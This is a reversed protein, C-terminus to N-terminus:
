IPRGPTKATAATHADSTETEPRCPCAAEFLAFAGEGFFTSCPFYKTEIRAQPSQWVGLFIPGFPGSSSGARSRIPCGSPALIWGSGFSAFVGQIAAVLPSM